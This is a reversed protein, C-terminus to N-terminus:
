EIRLVLCKLYASEPHTIVIRHDRAQTRKELLVARRGTSAAAERVARLLNEETFNYSCSCTVLTGGPVLVKLAGRQLERYGRAADELDRRSKAFAPPDLVVIDFTDGRERSEKLYDFVNARVASVGRLHNLAVNEELRALAAASGDVATVECSRGAALQLTFGGTYSFCDLIRSGRYRRAAIRNERQDLYAGTKQGDWLDALYTVVGEHCEVLPPREGYLLGKSEELGELRRVASDNREVVSRPALLALLLLTIEDKLRDMGLALTQISLHDGYHDVILGPLGDSESAVLRCANTEEVVENRYAIAAELRRRWFERGIPEDARTLFRLAIRSRANFFARGLCKGGPDVVRVIEGSLTPDLAHIDDRYVWPHGTRHWRLGKETIAVRGETRSGPFSDSVVVM